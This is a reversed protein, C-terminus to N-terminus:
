QCMPSTGSAAGWQECLRQKRQEPPLKALERMQTHFHQWTQPTAPADGRLRQWWHSM